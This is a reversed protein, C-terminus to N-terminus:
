YGVREFFSNKYKTELIDEIKNINSGVLRDGKWEGFLQARNQKFEKLINGLNLIKQCHKDCDSEGSM